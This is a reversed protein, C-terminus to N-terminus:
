RRFVFSSGTILHSLAASGTVLFYISITLKNTPMDPVHRARVIGPPKCASLVRKAGAPKRASYLSLGRIRWPTARQTANASAPRLDCCKSVIAITLDMTCHVTYAIIRHFCSVTQFSVSRLPMILPKSHPLQFAAASGAACKPKSDSKHRRSYERESWAKLDVGTVRSLLQNARIFRPIFLLVILGKKRDRARNFVVAISVHNIVLETM